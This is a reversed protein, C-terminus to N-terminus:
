IEDNNREGKEELRMLFAVYISMNQGAQITVLVACALTIM